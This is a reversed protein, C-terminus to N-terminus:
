TGGNLKVVEKDSFREKVNVGEKEQRVRKVTFAQHVYGEVGENTRQSLRGMLTIQM